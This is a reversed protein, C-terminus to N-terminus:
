CGFHFGFAFFRVFLVLSNRFCKLASGLLVLTRLCIAGSLEGSLEGLDKDSVNKPTGERNRVSQATRKTHSSGKSSLTSLVSVLVVTSLASSLGAVIFCVVDRETAGDSM